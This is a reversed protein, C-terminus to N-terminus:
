GPVSAIIQALTLTPGGQLTPYHRRMQEFIGHCANDSSWQTLPDQESQGKEIAPVKDIDTGIFLSLSIFLLQIQGSFNENSVVLSLMNRLPEFFPDKKMEEDVKKDSWMEMQHSAKYYTRIDKGINCCLLDNEQVAGKISHLTQLYLLDRIYLSKEVSVTKDQVQQQLRMLNTMFAMLSFRIQELKFKPFQLFKSNGQAWYISRLASEQDAFTDFTKNCLPAYIQALYEGVRNVLTFNVHEALRESVRLSKKMQDKLVGWERQSGWQMTEIQNSLDSMMELQQPSSRQFFPILSAFVAEYACFTFSAINRLNGIPLPIIPVGSISQVICAFIIYSFIPYVQGAASFAVLALRAFWLSELWNGVQATRSKGAEIIANQGQANLSAIGLGLNILKVIVPALDIIHLTLLINSNLRPSEAVQILAQAVVTTKLRSLLLTAMSALASYNSTLYFATAALVKCALDRLHGEVCLFRLPSNVAFSITEQPYFLAVLKSNDSNEQKAQPYLTLYRSLALAHDGLIMSRAVSAALGTGLFILTQKSPLWNRSIVGSVAGTAM